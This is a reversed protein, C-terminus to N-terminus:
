RYLAKVQGWSMNEASVPAYNWPPGCHGSVVVVAWHGLLYGQPSPNSLYIMVRYPGCQSFSVLVDTKLVFDSVSDIITEPTGQYNYWYPDVASQISEPPNEPLLSSTPLDFNSSTPITVIPDAWWNKLASYAIAGSGGTGVYM